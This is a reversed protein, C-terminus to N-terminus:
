SLLALLCLCWYQVCGVLLWIGGLWLILGIIRHHPVYVRDFTFKWMACVWEYAIGAIVLVLLAEIIPLDPLTHEMM